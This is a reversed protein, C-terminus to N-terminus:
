RAPRSGPARCWSGGASCRSPRSGPCSSACRSTDRRGGDVPAAPGDRDDGVVEGLTTLATRQEVTTGQETVVVPTQPARGGDLLAPWRRRLADPVASSSWPSTARRGARRSVDVEAQAPDIVHIARTKADTLPVGAYAPVASVASVGPVVEFPMDAKLCALAEEALGNFTAADGDM